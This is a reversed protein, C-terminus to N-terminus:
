SKDYKPFDQLCLIDYIGGLSILKNVTSIMYSECDLPLEKDARCYRSHIDLSFIKLSDYTVPTGQCGLLFALLLIAWLPRDFVSRMEYNHRYFNGWCMFLILTDQTM